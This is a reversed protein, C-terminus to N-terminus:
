MSWPRLDVITLVQGEEKRLLVVMDLLESRLPMWADAEPYPALKERVAKATNFKELEALSRAKEQILARGEEIPRYYEPQQYIELGALAADLLANSTEVDEPKPTFIWQPRGWPPSQYEPAARKAHEADIDIVTVINFRNNSLALWAPRGKAVTYLGYSFAALQVSVIVVLDLLLLIKKKGPKAVALTLCPGLIVDVGLLLLFIQTVGVAKHLPAPHWVLFVLALASLGLLASFLLHWLFAHVRSSSVISM